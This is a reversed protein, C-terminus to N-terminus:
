RAHDPGGNPASAGAASFAVPDMLEAMLSETLMGRERLVDVLENGTRACEGLIGEVAQHGLHRALVTALGVGSDMRMGIVDRRAELDDVCGALIRLANGFMECGSLLDHIVLPMFQPLQLQSESVAMSIAVDYAMVQICVQEVSECLVPNVKGPMISSGAQVPALRLEGLGCHPGSALLRLDSCIKKVAVAGTKLIGSVEVLSDANATADVLNRARCIPLEAVEALIAVVRRSYDRSANVGTGVATGGLNVERIWDRAKELRWRLRAVAEAWAGFEQGLTLPVADQLETRGTKMVAAYEREKALLASQLIKAGAEAHVLGRLLAIRAATPVADNTSQSMNVHDLPDVPFESAKEGLIKNALVAVRENAAMNTSTGAGGQLPHVPPSGLRDESLLWSCASEIASFRVADLDGAQANARCAALKVEVLARFLSSHTLDPSLPFNARARATHAGYLWGDEVEIEGIGDHEKRMLVAIM